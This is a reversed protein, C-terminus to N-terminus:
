NHTGLHFIKTFEIVEGFTHDLVNMKLVKKVMDVSPRPFSKKNIQFLMDAAKPTGSASHIVERM